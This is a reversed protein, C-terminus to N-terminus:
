SVVEDPAAPASSGLTEVVMEELGLPFVQVRAGPIARLDDLQREGIIRVVATVVAGSIEARLSGPIRFGSPVAQPFIVQVRRIGEQLADLGGSLILRGSDMIGIADALRELDSLIHTSLLVTTGEGLALADILEDILQRRALPDLGAAPEDMILVAPRAALALLIAVRRAEGGSMAGLRQRWALDWRQALGRAFSQDWTPYLHCYSACLHECTMWRPLGADQAVYAIRARHASGARWLDQGLVRAEGRDARLLGMLLRLATTKGAGNRGVLGYVSGAAVSLDLHDVGIGGGRFARRLGVAEIAPPRPDHM